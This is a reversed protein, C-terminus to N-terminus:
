EFWERALNKLSAGPGFPRLLLRLNYTGPQILYKDLTGPGCSAGGLGSQAIDLNLIVEPRATLENTHMAQYLDAATYHSASAEILKNASVLLGTGAANALAAWRVDTKNGHEQPMIYPEYQGTVTSQYLGVPLGAKRDQYSEQPGRGFWTFSEFGAPLALSLGIRPLPPLDGFCNLALDLGLMGNEFIQYTLEHNFGADLGQAQALLRTKVSLMHPQSQDVEFSLLNHQLRNLGAKLWHFLLKREDSLDWKMGDNDTAARWINLRPGSQLLPITHWVFDTLLGTTREFDLSFGQGAVTLVQGRESIQLPPLGKFSPLLTRSLTVPLKFQEWAVQHGADAWSAANSLTFRLNLWVEARGNARALSYPIQIMESFGPRTKLLPLLGSQIVEGDQILEWTASLYALTSFNHWNSIEFNGNQLDLARVRVPQFLKRVEFMASHLSRDPYVLGDNCFNMDNITDGFDGGYAWYVKGDPATKCISQDVWDWIFGGQLGPQSEIAEWYEKLNGVSNGMAHAYECMILPRSDANQLVFDVIRDVSPYMPCIIDTSFQGKSWDPNIAGEYHIPRSPDYGRMWGALMDHNVGYGSENGLSWVVVSAHNKDRELMRAGRELFAARWEPEQCLRNYLSHTEINAEDWVYLGFEDCLDYWREDNPYHSTRVANINHQKMLRIDTLMSQLSLAKGTTDDHEHRNVGRIFVRQGNILLDRNKIEVSRFGIRHSYYQIPQGQPDCLRVVLTYLYPTEHTWKLPSQIAQQLTVRDPENDQPTFTQSIYDDFLPQGQADFLQMQVQCGSALELSGALRAEVRLNGHLYAQDLSPRAFVDSLYLNPLSYLNVSRYMGALRWQDQDELFSADSWRMVQTVITNTGAHLYDTIDFEAPLRSDKSLGVKQANVWLYFFSDVGGFSIIVRRGDWAQPLDFKQRYLGTPNDFQPVTPPTNPIPMQVNCYIPKDYGQQTWNGPVQILDWASADYHETIFGQPLTEPNPALYFQWAGDLSKVWPSRQPDRTLAAAEDPFPFGTAHMPLRNVAIIQPNEWDNIIKTTM